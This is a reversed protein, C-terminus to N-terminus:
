KTHILTSYSVSLISLFLSIHLVILTYPQFTTPDSKVYYLSLLALLAILISTVIFIAQFSKIVDQKLTPNVDSLSVGYIAGFLGIAIVFGGIIFFSNKYSM